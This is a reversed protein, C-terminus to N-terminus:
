FVAFALAECKCAGYVVGFAVWCNYITAGNLARIIFAMFALGNPKTGGDEKAASGLNLPGILLEVTGTPRSARSVHTTWSRTLKLTAQSRTSVCVISLMWFWTMVLFWRMEM